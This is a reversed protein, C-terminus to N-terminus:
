RIIATGAVPQNFMIVVENLSPYTMVAVMPVGSTDVVTVDVYREFSHNVHWEKAPKSQTHVLTEGAGPIIGGSYITMTVENQMPPTTFKVHLTNEDVVSVTPYVFMNGKQVGYIVKTTGLGHSVDYELSRGDGIYRVVMEGASVKEGPPGQPGTLGINLKWHESTEYMGPPINGLNKNTLSVYLNGKYSVISGVSYSFNSMWEWNEGRLMIYPYLSDQVDRMSDIARTINMTLTNRSNITRDGDRLVLQFPLKRAKTAASLVYTPIIGKWKGPEEEELPLFPRVTKGCGVQAYVAFDVRVQLNETFSSSEIGTVSIEVSDSDITAGGYFDSDRPLSIQRTKPAYQVDITLM